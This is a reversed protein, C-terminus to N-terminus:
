WHGTGSEGKVPGVIDQTIWGGYFHGPQPKVREGDVYCEVRGPYFSYAGRLAAFSPSPDPYSWGIAEGGANQQLALAWYAAAGKWECFSSGQIAVLAAHNIDAAPIYYTPPSATELVRHCHTSRALESGQAQVLVEKECPVLAPPRPYDWVSEQGPGPEEAFPPRQKGTYQWM